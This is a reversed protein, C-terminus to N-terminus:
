AHLNTLLNIVLTTIDFYKNSPNQIDKNSPNMSRNGFHTSEKIQFRKIHGM